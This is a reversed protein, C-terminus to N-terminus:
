GNRVDLSFNAGPADLREADLTFKAMFLASVTPLTIPKNWIVHQLSAYFVISHTRHFHDCM